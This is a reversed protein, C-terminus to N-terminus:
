ARPKDQEPDIDEPKTPKPQPPVLPEMDKPTQFQVLFKENDVAEHLLCQKILKREHGLRSIHVIAYPEKANKYVDRWDERIGSKWRLVLWAHCLILGALLPFGIYARRCQFLQKWRLRGFWRVLAELDEWLSMETRYSGCGHCICRSPGGIAEWVRRRTAALVVLAISCCLHFLNIIRLYWDALTNQEKADGRESRLM